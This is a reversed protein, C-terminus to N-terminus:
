TSSIAYHLPLNASEFLDLCVQITKRNENTKGPIQALEFAPGIQLLLNASIWQICTQLFSM